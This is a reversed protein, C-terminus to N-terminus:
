ITFEVAASAGCRGFCNVPVAEFRYRGSPLESEAFWAQTRRGVRSEPLHYDSALVRKSVAVREYDDALFVARVEYEYVRGGADAAPVSVELVRSAKESGDRWEVTPRAGAPFEPPRSAQRRPEFAFARSGDLPVIWDPGVSAGWIFDRREIELRDGYLRMYMGHKCEHTDLYPMPTLKSAGRVFPAGNERYGRGGATILTSTGISTFSGQWINREDTLPQHAHGSLAIACPFSSLAATTGGDDGHTFPLCTGKPHAHQVHFFSGCGSLEGRHAAYFAGIGPVEAGGRRYPEGLRYPSWSALVFKVGKVERVLIPAYDIGFCERWAAAPDRAISMEWREKLAAGEWAKGTWGSMRRWATADHNGLIFLREVKGGDAGRDDPFVRKWVDALCRLEPLLGFETLDGAIVVADVGRERFYRLAREFVEPTRLCEGAHEDQAACEPVSAHIDSLVGLRLRPGEAAFARPLGALAGGAALTKVFERRDIRMM